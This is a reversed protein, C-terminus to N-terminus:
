PEVDDGKDAELRALEEAEECDGCLDGEIADTDDVPAGCKACDVPATDDDEDVYQDRDHCDPCSKGDPSDDSDTRDGCSQCTIEEPEDVYASAVTAAQPPIFGIEDFFARAGDLDYVSWHADNEFMACVAKAFRHAPNPAVHDAALWSGTGLASASVIKTDESKM